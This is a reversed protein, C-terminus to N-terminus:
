SSSVSTFLTFLTKDDLERSYGRIKRLIDKNTEKNEKKGRRPYFKVCPYLVLITTPHHLMNGEERAPKGSLESM